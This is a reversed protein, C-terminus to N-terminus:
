EDWLCGNECACQLVNLRDGEAARRQPMGEPAPRASSALVLDLTLRPAKAGNYTHGTARVVMAETVSHIWVQRELQSAKGGRLRLVRQESPSLLNARQLISGLVIADAEVVTQLLRRGRQPVLKSGLKQDSTAVVPAASAHLPPPQSASSIAVCLLALRQLTMCGAMLAIM